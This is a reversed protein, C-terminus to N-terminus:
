GQAAFNDRTFSIPATHNKKFTLVYILHFLTLSVAQSHCPLDRQGECLKMLNLLNAFMQISRKYEVIPYQVSAETKCM